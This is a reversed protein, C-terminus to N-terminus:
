RGGYEGCKFIGAVGHLIEFAYPESWLVLDTLIRKKLGYVPSRCCYSISHRNIGFM